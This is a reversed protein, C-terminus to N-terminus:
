TGNCSFSHLLTMAYSAPVVGYWNRCAVLMPHATDSHRIQQLLCRCQGRSAAAEIRWKEEKKLVMGHRTPLEYQPVRMLM